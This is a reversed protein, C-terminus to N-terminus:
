QKQDLHNRLIGLRNKQKTDVLVLRNISLTDISRVDIMNFLYVLSSIFFNTLNKENSGPFVVVSDPYLIHAALMSGIADYDANIHTTIVTVGKTDNQLKTPLQNKIHASM